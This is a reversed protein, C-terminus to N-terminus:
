TLVLLDLTLGLLGMMVILVMGIRLLSTTLAEPLDKRIVGEIAYIMLHGGDLGPVPLLNMIGVAISLLAMLYLFPLLGMTLTHATMKAIRIPGSLEYIAREGKIIQNLTVLQAYVTFAGDSVGKTFAASITPAREFSQPMEIGLFGIKTANGIDDEVNKSGLIVSFKRPEDDRIINIDVRQGPRIMINQRVDAALVINKGALSTIIDGNHFGATAAPSQPIVATIVPRGAPYGYAYAILAFILAALLLNIGPGAGVVIARQWRPLANLTKQDPKSPQNDDGPFKVYGGILFPAVRWETGKRDTWGFIKKGFGISFHTAILGCSRAAQYHGYEHIMVIISIMLVFACITFAIDIM